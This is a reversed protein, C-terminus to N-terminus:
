ARPLLQRKYVDKGVALGPNGYVGVVLGDVGGLLKAVRTRHELMVPAKDSQAVGVGDHGLASKLEQDWLM